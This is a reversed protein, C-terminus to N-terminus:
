KGVANAKTTPEGQAAALCGGLRKSGCRKLFPSFIYPLCFFLDILNTVTQFPFCFSHTCAFCILSNMWYKGDAHLYEDAEPLCPRLVSLVQKPLYVGDGCIDRNGEGKGSSKKRSFAKQGGYALFHSELILQQGSSHISDWQHTTKHGRRRPSLLSMQKRLTM